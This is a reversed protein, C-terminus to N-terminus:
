TTTMGDRGTTAAAGAGGGTLWREEALSAAFGERYSPYRLRYGLEDCLLRNSVRRNEAWFSLAMPSMSDAIAEFCQLPPLKCGLLHAAYSLTESSPCPADDSVNLVTPRVSPPLAMGHLLAGIIDDVHIRCFVQGPKHVLRATGQQLQQFPCRGPGYIAPLRFSMVPLGSTLWRQECRLRAQSRPLTPATPSTEDVWGGRSDGYVGTTSLYGLWHLPQQRLAPLLQDLAADSGDSGSPLTVLVHSIGEPLATLPHGNAPDFRLWELDGPKTAAGPASSGAEGRRTLWVRSGRAAAAAAFRQGTYGGGIVLVRADPNVAWSTM